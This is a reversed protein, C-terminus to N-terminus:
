RSRRGLRLSIEVQGDVLLNKVDPRLSIEVQRVLSVRRAQSFDRGSRRAVYAGLRLSIEVQGDGMVKEDPRLSIEVQGVLSM